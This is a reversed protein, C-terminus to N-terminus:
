LHMSRKKGFATTEKSARQEGDRAQTIVKGFLIFSGFLVPEEGTEARDREDFGTSPFKASVLTAIVGDSSQRSVFMALGRHVERAQGYPQQVCCNGCTSRHRCFRLVVVARIQWRLRKPCLRQWCFPFRFPLRLRAVGVARGHRFFGTMAGGFRPNGRVFRAPLSGSNAMAAPFPVGIPFRAKIPHREEEAHKLKMARAKPRAM